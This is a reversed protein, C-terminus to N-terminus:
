TKASNLYFIQEHLNYYLTAYMPAPPTGMATGTLQSQASHVGDFTFINHKMVINLGELLATVDIPCQLNTFAESLLFTGITSLAHQTDINPYMSVADATFLQANPPLTPLQCLRHALSWSNTTTYPLKKVVLQLQQEVWRGLGHLLSGSVSTIPRTAWPTKHVKALLYFHGYPNEVELSHLLFKGTATPRSGRYPNPEHHFREIFSNM